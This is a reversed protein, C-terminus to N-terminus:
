EEEPPITSLPLVTVEFLYSTPTQDYPSPPTATVQFKGPETARFLCRAWGSGDTTFPRSGTSDEFMVALGSVADRTYFSKAQIELSVTEGVQPDFAPGRTTAVIRHHGVSVPQKPYDFDAEPLSLVIGQGDGETSLTADVNWLVGASEIKQDTEPTLQMNLKDGEMLKAGMMLGTVLSDGAPTFVCEHSAGICAYLTEGAALEHGDVTFTGLDQLIPPLLIGQQVYSGLAAHRVILQFRSSSPYTSSVQYGLGETTVKRPTAPDPHVDFQLEPDSESILEVTVFEDILRDEVSMIKLEVPPTDRFCIHGTSGELRGDLTVSALQAWRDEGYIYISFQETPDISDYGSDVRVTVVLEGEAEPKLAFQAQGGVDTLVEQETGDDIRWYTKVGTVGGVGPVKSEIDVSLILDPGGVAPFKSSQYPNHISLWNHALDVTQLPSPELLRSCRLNWGIKSSTLNACDASWAGKSDAVPQGIEFYPNLILGMEGPTVDGTWYLGLESGNLVNADTFMMEIEHSAGRNIFATRSGWVWADLEDLRLTTSTWPDEQFAFSVLRFHADEPKYYSEVEAKIVFAGKLTPKYILVAEGKEDSDQTSLVEGTSELTFIVKRKALAMRTFHSVVKVRLEVGQGLAIVPYHEPPMEAIVDLHFHGSIVPLLYQDATYVTQIALLNSIQVDEMISRCTIQWDKDLPYSQKWDPSASLVNEADDLNWLEARTKHWANELHVQFALRHTAGICLRVQRQTQVEGDVTVSDLQLPELCLLLKASTFCLIGPHVPLPNPPSIVSIKVTTEEEDLLLTVKLPTLELDLLDPSPGQAREKQLSPVLDVDYEGGRGPNIRLTGPSEVSFAQYMFDLTYDAKGPRPRPYEALRVTQWGAGTDVAGMFGISKEEWRATQHTVRRGDNVEWGELDEPFFGNYLFSEDARSDKDSM